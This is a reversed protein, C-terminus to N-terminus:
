MKFYFIHKKKDLIPLKTKSNRTYLLSHETLNDLSNLCSNNKIVPIVTKQPDAFNRPQLFFQFDAGRNHDTVRYKFRHFFFKRYACTCHYIVVDGWSRRTCYASITGFIM